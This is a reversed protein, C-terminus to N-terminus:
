LFMSVCVYHKTKSGRATSDTVPPTHGIDETESCKAEIHGQGSHEGVAKLFVTAKSTILVKIRHGRQTSTNRKIHANTKNVKKRLM